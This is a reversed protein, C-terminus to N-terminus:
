TETNVGSFCVTVGVPIGDAGGGTIFIGGAIGDKVGAGAGTGPCTGAFIGFNSICSAGFFTSVFIPTNVGPPDLGFAEGWVAGDNLLGGATEPNTFGGTIGVNM